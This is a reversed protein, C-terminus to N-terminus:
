MLHMRKLSKAQREGIIVHDLVRVDLLRGAEVLKGTIEIDETSPTPDGSPHNHAVIMQAAGDRFVERIGVLSSDISGIHVTSVRMVQMKTDLLIAVFHERKEYRLYDLLQFVDDADEVVTPDGKGAIASRRGLEIAAATRVAEEHTLDLLKALQHISTDSLNRLNSAHTLLRKAFAFRDNTETVADGVLISILEVTPTIKLSSDPLRKM